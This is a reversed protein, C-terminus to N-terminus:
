AQLGTQCCCGGSCEQQMTLLADSVLLTLREAILMGLVAAIPLRVGPVLDQQEALHLLGPTLIASPRFPQLGVRSGLLKWVPGPPLDQRVGSAVKGGLGPMMEWWGSRALIRRLNERELGLAAVSWAMAQGSCAWMMLALQEHLKRDGALTQRRLLLGPVLDLALHHPCAQQAQM